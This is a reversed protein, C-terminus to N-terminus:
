GSKADAVAKAVAPGAAPTVQVNVGTLNQASGALAAPRNSWLSWAVGVFSLIGGIAWDVIGASFMGKSVFIGGITTLIARLIGTVQDQTM